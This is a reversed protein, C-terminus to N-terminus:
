SNTLCEVLSIRLIGAAPSGIKPFRLIQPFYAAVVRITRFIEHTWCITAVVGSNRPQSRADEGPALRCMQAGPRGLADREQDRLCGMRGARDDSRLGLRAAFVGNARGTTRISGWGPRM